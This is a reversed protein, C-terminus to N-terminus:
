KEAIHDHSSRPQLNSNGASIDAVYRSSVNRDRSLRSMNRAGHSVCQCITSTAQWLSLSCAFARNALEMRASKVVNHNLRNKSSFHNKSVYGQKRLADIKSRHRYTVITAYSVCTISFAILFNYIERSVM